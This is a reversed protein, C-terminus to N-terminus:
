IRPIRVPKGKLAREISFSREVKIIDEPTKVSLSEYGIKLVKIRLRCNLARILDIEELREADCIEASMFDDAAKRSYCSVGIHKWFVTRGINKPFPVPARSLYLVEDKSSLVAKVVNIDAMDTQTVEQVCTAIDCSGSSVMDILKEISKSLIGIEGCDVIVTPKIVKQITDLACETGNRYTKVINENIINMGRLSEKIDKHDSCVIVQSEKIELAKDVMWNILPKGLISILPKAKIRVSGYKAPIIIVSKM